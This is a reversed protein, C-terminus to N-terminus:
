ASPTQTSTTTTLHSSTPAACRSGLPHASRAAIQMAVDTEVETTPDSRHRREYQIPSIDGLAAHRGAFSGLRLGIGYELDGVLTEKEVRPEMKPLEPLGAGSFRRFFRYGGM